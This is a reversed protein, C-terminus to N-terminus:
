RTAPSQATAAAASSSNALEWAGFDLHDLRELYAHFEARQVFLRTFSGGDKTELRYAGNVFTAGVLDAPEIRRSTGTRTDLGYIPVQAAIEHALTDLMEAFDAGVNTAVRELLMQAAASVSLLSM